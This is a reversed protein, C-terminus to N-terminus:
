RNSGKGAKWEQGEEELFSDQVDGWLGGQCRRGRQAPFM